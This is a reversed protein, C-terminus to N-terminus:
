RDSMWAVLPAVLDLSVRYSELATDLLEADSPAAGDHARRSLPALTERARHWDSPLPLLALTWGLYRRYGGRAPEAAANLWARALPGNLLAALAHADREDRCRVVYCSNLPVTADGAVLVSARPERGIDAWVVRSQDTRASETRFLSWWRSARRADARALLARRWHAFWRAAHPPLAGVPADLADHTWIIHEADSRASWRALREGRVLPRLLEREITGVRGDRARVEATSGLSAIVEVVFADNYGCKVGLHPRGLPSQALPRGSRRLLDFADRHM